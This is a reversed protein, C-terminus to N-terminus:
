IKRVRVTTKTHIDIGKPIENNNEICEKTYARLTSSFVTEKIIDGAGKERLDKFLKEQDNVKPFISAHVYFQGLEKIKFNQLKYLSMAEVFKEQLTDIAETVKSEEDKLAKKKATLQKLQKGFEILQENM